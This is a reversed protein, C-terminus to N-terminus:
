DGEKGSGLESELDALTRGGKGGVVRRSTGVKGAPETGAGEGEDMSVMTPKPARGGTTILGRKGTSTAVPKPPACIVPVGDKAGAKLIVGVPSEGLTVPVQVQLTLSPDVELAFGKQNIKFKGLSTPEDDGQYFYAVSESAGVKNGADPFQCFNVYGTLVKEGLNEVVISAILKTGAEAQEADVEEGDPGYYDPLIPDQGEKLEPM